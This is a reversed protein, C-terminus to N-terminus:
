DINVPTVELGPMEWYANIIEPSGQFEKPIFLFQGSATHYKFTVLVPTGREFLYLYYSPDEATLAENRVSAIAISSFAVYSSGLRGNIVSCLAQLNFQQLVQDQLAPSLSDWIEKNKPNNVFTQEELITMPDNLRISYVAVPHGYDYTNVSTRIGSFTEPMFFLSLYAESNAIDSMLGTVELGIHYYDPEATESCAACTTCFLLVASLLACIWKKMNM